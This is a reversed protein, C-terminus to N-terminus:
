QLGLARRILEKTVDDASKFAELLEMDSYDLERDNEAPPKEKQEGNLLFSTTVGFYDAIKNLTKGNPTAGTQKWKTPTSNSLGIEIAARKCSVGKEICLANFVDFFM